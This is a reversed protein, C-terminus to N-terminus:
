GELRIGSNHLANGLASAITLARRSHNSSTLEHINRQAREPNSASQALTELLLGEDRTMKPACCNAIMISRHSAHAIEAMYCRLLVLPQRFGTGFHRLALMAAHADRLGHGGMRRMMILIIRDTCHTPMPLLTPPNASDSQKM